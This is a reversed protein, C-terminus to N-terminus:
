LTKDLVELKKLWPKQINQAAMIVAKIFSWFETGKLAITEMGGKHFVQVIPIRYRRRTITRSPAYGYGVGHMGYGVVPAGEVESDIYTKHLLKVDDIDEWRILKGGLLLGERYVRVKSRRRYEMLCVVFLAALSAPVVHCFPLIAGLEEPNPSSPLLVCIPFFWVLIVTLALLGAIAVWYFISAKRSSAYGGVFLADSM